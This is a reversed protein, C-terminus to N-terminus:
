SRCAERTSDPDASHDELSSRRLLSRLSQARLRPCCDAGVGGGFAARADLAVSEAPEEVHELVGFAVIASCPAEIPASQYPERYLATQPVRDALVQAASSPEIAVTEWGPRARVFRSLFEGKGAGVELLRGQSGIGAKELFYDLAIQAMPAPENGAFNVNCADPSHMRLKYQRAYFSESRGRPGGQNWVFGCQLCIRNDIVSHEIIHLDSTACRGEYIPFLQQNELLGCLPCASPM